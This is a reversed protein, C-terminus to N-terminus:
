EEGLIEYMRDKLLDILGDDYMHENEVLEIADEFVASVIKKVFKEAAPHEVEYLRDLDSSWEDVSKM